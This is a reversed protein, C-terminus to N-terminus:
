EVIVPEPPAVTGGNNTETVSIGPTSSASPGVMCIKPLPRYYSEFRRDIKESSSTVRSYVFSAVAGKFASQCTREGPKLTPSVVDAPSAGAPIWKSVVPHTYWGKRGDPKGWLTFTLQQRKFDIVTQLLVYSGTDNKFKLDLFPEYLAADTGPNGNVPDAYYNVVLSHNQRQTIDMGSNMAMRFLTTGIQCMGGGIEKSIKNGKIVEEPLYGNESTFPGAYKLASFEEDPKILVGNLREVAHTINKIRNSHSDKFTSIGVGLVDSVGLDNITSLKVDPDIVTIVVSVTQASELPRYNRGMIIKNVEEYTKKIDLKQGTESAAFEKVKGDVISFKANQAPRDIYGSINDSLYEMVKDSDLSFVINSDSDRTAVIWKSLQDLSINWDHRWETQPDIFNIGLGGYALLSALEVQKNNLEGSKITPLFEHNSIIIPTFLLNELNNKLKNEVESWIFMQGSKEAVVKYEGSSLNTIFVNANHSSDEYSSLEESLVEKLKQEHWSVPAALHEDFFRLYVPYFYQWWFGRQDRGSGLAMEVFHDSDLKALEITSDGEVLITSIKFAGVEVGNKEVKLELGEKALRNNLTEIFNKLEDARMGGLHYAGVYVGPYVKNQYLQAYGMAGGIIMGGLVLIVAGSILAVKLFRRGSLIPKVKELLGRLEEKM